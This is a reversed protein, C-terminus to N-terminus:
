AGSQCVRVLAAVPAHIGIQGFHEDRYCARQIGLIRQECFEVASDIREIGGGDVDAEGQTRPSGIFTGSAGDLHMRQKVQAAANGRKDVDGVTTGVVHQRQVPDSELGTGKVYHIAPVQTECTQKTDMLAAREEDGPRQPGGLHATLTRPLNCTFRAQTGIM